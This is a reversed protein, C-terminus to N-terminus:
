IRLILNSGRDEVRVVGLRANLKPGRSGLKGPKIEMPRGRNKDVVILSKKLKLVRGPHYRQGGQIFPTSAYIYPWGLGPPLAVVGM